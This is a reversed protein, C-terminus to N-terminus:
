WYEGLAPLGGVHDFHGHTLLIAAPRSHGGFLETTASVIQSASFPLGADILVWSASAANESRVFYLNVISQELVKVGAAIHRCITRRDLLRRSARGQVFDHLPGPESLRGHEVSM